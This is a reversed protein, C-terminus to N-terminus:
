KLINSILVLSKEINYLSSWKMEISSYGEYWNLLKKLKHHIKREQIIELNPESIHFHTIHNKAETIINIDENNIIITWLDLHLKIWPNNIYKVFDLTENTNCMFNWWYIEPNPEICIYVWKSNCYNWLESFFIKAIEIADSKTINEFIRNKPSWFVLSKIWLKSAFDIIKIIYNKLNENWNEDFLKLEPKWFLLSQAAVLDIWFKNINSNFDKIEEDSIELFNNFTKTPAIELWTFWYKKMLNYVKENNDKEWAINSIALKM